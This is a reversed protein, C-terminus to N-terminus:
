SRCSINGLYIHFTHITCGPVSIIVICSFQIACPKLMKILMTWYKVPLSREDLSNIENIIIFEFVMMLLVYRIRAQLPFLWYIFIDNNWTSQIQFTYTFDGFGSPEIRVFQFPFVHFAFLIIAYRILYWLPNFYRKSLIRHLHLFFVERSGCESGNWRQHVTKLVNTKRVFSTLHTHFQIPFHKSYSKQICAVELAAICQQHTCLVPSFITCTASQSVYVLLELTDYWVNAINLCSLREELGCVCLCGCACACRPVCLSNLWYIKYQSFSKHRVRKWRNKM